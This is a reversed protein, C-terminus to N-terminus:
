PGPTPASIGFRSATHEADKLEPRVAQETLDPQGELRTSSSASHTTSPRTSIISPFVIPGPDLFRVIISTKDFGLGEAEDQAEELTNGFAIVGDVGVAVWQGPHEKLLTAEAALYHRGAKETMKLWKKFEINHEQGFLLAVQEIDWRQSSDGKEAMDVIREARRGSGVVLLGIASRIIGGM